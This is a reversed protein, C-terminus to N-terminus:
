RFKPGEIWAVLSKRVGSTVPKVTHRVPSPFCFVTGRQALAKADPQEYMPDLLFQGGEYETPDSLQITVSIKRDFSTHGAWFTDHHWDYYGQDTGNYITYQIDELYSIDFGFAQRNARTAFGYVLKHIWEIQGAWRVESRRVSTNVTNTASDSGVNAEM